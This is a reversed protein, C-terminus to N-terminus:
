AHVDVLAGAPVTTTISTILEDDRDEVHLQHPNHRRGGHQHRREGARGADEGQARVDLTALTLGKAELSRRLDDGAQQLQPIADPSSATFTASLGDSTMRLRVV